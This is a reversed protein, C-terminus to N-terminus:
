RLNKGLMALRTRGIVAKNLFPAVNMKIGEISSATRAKSASSAAGGISTKGIPVSDDVLRSWEMHMAIGAGITESCREFLFLRVARDM